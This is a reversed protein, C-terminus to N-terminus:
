FISVMGQAKLLDHDKQQHLTKGWHQHGNVSWPPPQQLSAQSHCNRLILCTVNALSVRKMFWKEIVAISNSLMKVVNSSREFNSDVRLVRSSSQWRFKPWISLGENDKWWGECCRWWCVTKDYSSLLETVDEPEMHLELERATKMVDALVEGVSMM